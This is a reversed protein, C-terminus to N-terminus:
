HRHRAVLEYCVEAAGAFGPLKQYLWLPWGHRPAYALTRFVAEAGQSRRGVLEILQVAGKFQEPPIDPFLSAAEQYPAYEVRGGTTQSCRAIWARCFGCDGDYVLLPKTPKRVPATYWSTTTGKQM